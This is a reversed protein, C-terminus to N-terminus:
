IAAASKSTIAIAVVTNIRSKNFSDTQVVLVPRKFGPESATPEPLEAWWIQGRSVM